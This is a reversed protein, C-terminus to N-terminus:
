IRRKPHPVPNGGRVLGHARSLRVAKRLVMAREDPTLDGMDHSHFLYGLGYNAYDTYWERLIHLRRALLFEWGLWPIETCKSSGPHYPSAFVHGLEHIINPLKIHGIVVYVARNDWDVAHLKEVPSQGVTCPLDVYTERTVLNLSGGWREALRQLYKFKEMM